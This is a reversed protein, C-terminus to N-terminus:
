PKKRIIARQKAKLANEVTCNCAMSPYSEDILIVDCNACVTYEGYDDTNADQKIDSGIVEKDVLNIISTLAEKYDLDYIPLNAEPDYASCLIFLIKELEEKFM